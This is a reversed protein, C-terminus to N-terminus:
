SSNLSKIQSTDTSISDFINQQLQDQTKNVISAYTKNFQAAFLNAIDAPELAYNYYTLDAMMLNKQTIEHVTRSRSVYQSSGGPQTYKLTPNVYVTGQNLRLPSSTTSTTDGLKGVIYKDLKVAGNTYIRARIKDRIPFPDSPLTDQLTITVMFWKKPFEISLNKLAIKYQNIAKWDTDIDKCTNRSGTLAGDPYSLTNFEVTLVDGGDELKVLPSKVLVDTKISPVGTTANTTGSCQNQYQLVTSSGRLFLVFPLTKPDGNSALPNLGADPYVQSTNTDDTSAAFVQNKTNDIYLWFNYSYEAGSVQNISNGMDVYNIANPNLTDYLIDSNAGFDIVGKFIPATKKITSTKRIAKIMEQNYVVMAGIFLIIVIIIACFVQIYKNM